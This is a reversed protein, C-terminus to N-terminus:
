SINEITTQDKTVYEFKYRGKYPTKIRGFCRKSIIDHREKPLGLYDRCDVIADFIKEEGTELDIMKVKSSNPNKSGKKSNSIKRSIEKMNPNNTLTDGGSKGITGKTNLGKEVSNYFNIWYLERQNANEIDVEELLEISFNEIGFENIAKYLKLNKAREQKSFWKHMGLRRHLTKSTQGIYIQKTKLCTLKYIKM